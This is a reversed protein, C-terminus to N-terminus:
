WKYKSKDLQKSVTEGIHTVSCVITSALFQTLTMAMRSVCIYKDNTTKIPTMTYVSDTTTAGNVRWNIEIPTPSFDDVIAYVDVFTNDGDESKSKCAILKVNPTSIPGGTVEVTAYPSRILNNEKLYVYYRETSGIENGRISITITKNDTDIDTITATIGGTCAVGFDGIRPTWATRNTGYLVTVPQTCGYPVAIRPAEFYVENASDRFLMPEEVQNAKLAGIFLDLLYGTVSDHQYYNNFSRMPPLQDIDQISSSEGDGSLAEIANLIRQGTDDTLIRKTAM